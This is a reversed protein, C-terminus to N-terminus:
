HRDQEYISGLIALGDRITSEAIAGYGIVLAPPASPPDWWHWSAGEVLLGRTRAADILSLEDSWSPLHLYVHLGAAVGGPVADPLSAAIAALATDRRRRYVPRVRRLHRTLGGSEIYRALALQEILSNGMDDLLKQRAVDHVLWSPLALWGLRLAPTLTKSVCGGYAVREPALGQLAGIPARDYRFEADYDDEIILGDSAVAWKVLAARRSPSLVTGTPYSHAPAVLVAGVNHGLLNAVTLGDNDVPIPVVRLGANLIADRHFGFCPDEVAIADVGRARLARALLVIAQTLGSTILMRDASTAVGRVRAIYDALAVRLRLAGLPGPYGLQRNPVETLVARYNRLWEPRPFLSPDPLGGLLRLEAAPEIDAASPASFPRAIPMVQTRSGQRGNLYGDAALHEYAAVVVSRAVGLERALTRSPPLVAGSPLRGTQIASRLQQQLQAGLGRRESRDLAVLLDPPFGFTEPNTQESNLSNSGSV